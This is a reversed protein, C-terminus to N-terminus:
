NKAFFSPLPQSIFSINNSFTIDLFTVDTHVVLAQQIRGDDSINIARSQHLIARYQGEKNKLRLMYVIKNHPIEEKQIKKYLFEGAFAEKSHLKSLDDPHVLNFFIKLDFENPKM